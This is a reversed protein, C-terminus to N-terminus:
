PTLNLLVMVGGTNDPAGVDPVGATASQGHLNQLLVQGLGPGAGVVFPPYFTGKGTGLAIGISGDAPLLLDPIGDGNVDGIQAPLNDVFPYSINQQGSTFGGKGNGLYVHATANGDEDVVADLNGDGNLDALMIADPGASDNVTTLTFGGEQNNLLVYLAACCYEPQTALLDTWGDNNVDGAAIWNFGLDPPNALIAVPAQFTGDGNGLALQNSSTAVDLKGDHNFDGVVLNNAASFPIVSAQSFTGNGNGLFVGVGGLGDAGVLLDPIGDGNVDATIPCAPGSISITTGTTYPTAAKGTGLLVTLGNTTPVALDVSGAGDFAGAAGCNGSGSLPSWVGDVFAGDGENVLVSVSRNLGTIIDNYGTKATTTLQALAVSYWGNTNAVDYCKQATFKADGKGYAVCGQSSALDPLGDGNVDGVAVGEGSVPVSVPGYFSGKGNNFYISAGPVVIDTYGDRTTAAAVIYAGANNGLLVPTQFTGNGKGFLVWLGKSYASVAVDLNGDGNFDAVAIWIGGTPAASTLVGPNFTGGGRGTFLWIGKNGAALLDPTGDGNFDGVVANSLSDNAPYSVPQQFTGDGNSFLVGIAGSGGIVLDDKGDGNLDALTAGVQSQWNTTTNVAAKFSGYGNGLLVSISYEISVAVVDPIGSGTVDGIAVFGGASPYDRRSFFQPVTVAATLTSYCLIMAFAAKRM